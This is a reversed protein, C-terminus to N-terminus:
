SRGTLEPSEWGRTLIEQMALLNQEFGAAHPHGGGGFLSAVESVDLGDKTSRLSWQQMGDQRDFYCAGFPRGIALEGAIESFLVTANVALIRHGGLTVERAHLLHQDIMQREVRLIARGENCFDEWTANEVFTRGDSRPVMFMLSDWMAWQMPYSRLAANAERSDRLKWRWLDRDETYEVLWPPNNLSFRCGPKRTWDRPLLGEIDLYEWAMRGGSKGMNFVIDVQTDANNRGVEEALGMLEAEATKHHDRVVLRTAANALRVMDARKYSFDLIYVARGTAKELPPSDGYHAPHFEALPFAHHFLWAGTFGDQCGSHYIVLPQTM